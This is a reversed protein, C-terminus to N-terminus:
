ATGFFCLEDDVLHFVDKHKSKFYEYEKAPMNVYQMKNFLFVALSSSLRQFFNCDTSEGKNNTENVNEYKNEERHNKGKLTLQQKGGEFCM